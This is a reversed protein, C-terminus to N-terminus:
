VLSMMFFSLAIKDEETMDTYDINRETLWEEVETTIEKGDYFFGYYNDCKLAPGNDCHLNGNSDVKCTM